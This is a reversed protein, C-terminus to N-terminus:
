CHIAAATLRETPLTNDYLWEALEYGFSQILTLKGRKRRTGTKM